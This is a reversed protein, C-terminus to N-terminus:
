GKVAGASLGQRLFREMALFLIVVPLTMITSAAMVVHPRPSPDNFITNIQIPMTFLERSNLFIFAYLFENWAIMFTYVLVSIIAPISLPLTIRWIVDLRSCGDILGAHEIEEPVTRFYNALMYLAVPLTQALYTVILVPLNDQVDFGMQAGIQSVMAFLPIILLV